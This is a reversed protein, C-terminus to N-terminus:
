KFNKMRDTNLSPFEIILEKKSFYSINKIM